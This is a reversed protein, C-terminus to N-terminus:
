RPLDDQPGIQSGPLGISLSPHLITVTASEAGTWEGCWAGESVNPWAATTKLNLRNQENSVSMLFVQPPNRRCLAQVGDSLWFRCTGCKQEVM